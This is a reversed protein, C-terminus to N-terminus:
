KKFVGTMYDTVRKLATAQDIEGSWYSTFNEAMNTYVGLAEASTGGNPVFGYKAANDGMMLMDPRGSAVTQMIKDVVPPKGPLDPEGFLDSMGADANRTSRKASPRNTPLGDRGTEGPIM